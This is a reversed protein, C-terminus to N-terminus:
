VQKKKLGDNQFLPKLAVEYSYRSKQVAEQDLQRLDSGYTKQLYKLTTQAASLRAQSRSASQVERLGVVHNRVVLFEKIQTLLNKLSSTSLLFHFRLSQKLKGDM